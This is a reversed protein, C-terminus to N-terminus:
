RLQNQKNFDFIRSSVVSSGFGCFIVEIFNEREDNLRCEKKRLSNCDVSVVKEYLNNLHTVVSGNVTKDTYTIKIYLSVTGDDFYVTEFPSDNAIELKVVNTDLKSIKV